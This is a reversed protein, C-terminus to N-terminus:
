IYYLDHLLNPRETFRIPPRELGGPSTMLGGLLVHLCSFIPPQKSCLM